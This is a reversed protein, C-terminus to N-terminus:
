NLSLDIEEIDPATLEEDSVERRAVDEDLDEAERSPSRFLKGRNSEVYKDGGNDKLILDLVLMWREYVNNLKIHDLEGWARTATHCLSSLEQRQGHHMKEVVSQLAMWVGLDLMNTAPSRPRQHVCIVNYEDKLPVMQIQQQTTLFPPPFMIPPPPILGPNGM